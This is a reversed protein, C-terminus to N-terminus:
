SYYLCSAILAEVLGHCKVTLMSVLQIKWYHFYRYRIGSSLTHVHVTETSQTNLVQMTMGEFSVLLAPLSLHSVNNYWSTGTQSGCNDDLKSCISLRCILRGFPFLRCQRYTWSIALPLSIMSVFRRTVNSKLFYLAGLM